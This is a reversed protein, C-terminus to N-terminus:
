ISKKNPEFDLVTNIIIDPEYEMLKEIGLFGSLVAATRIGLIKGTQVDKGTDGVFWDAADIVFSGKILAEKEMKQGTVFIKTFMDDWGFSALQALARDEFQRSTALYIENNKKLQVLYETVGKFPKDLGLWQPLEIQQMWENQFHDIQHQSYSFVSSLIEKHDIKKQKYKWYDEFTFVSAPVLHQFLRFLREKSDILTGDLDFFIRM